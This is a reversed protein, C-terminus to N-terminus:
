SVTVSVTGPQTLPYVSTLTQDSATQGGGDLGLTVSVVRGVGNAGDMLAIVENLYVTTEWAWVDPSFYNELADSVNQQVEASTLTGDSTVTATVDVSFLGPDVVHLNLGAHARSEMDAELDSRETPTLLLGGAKAVAVTTNGTDLGPSGANPGAPDYLDIARARFIGEQELAYREFQSPLVLAETLRGLRETGRSLFQSGTEPDVGGAPSTDLAVSQVSALADVVSVSSGVDLGNPATGVTLAEGAVTGTANGPSVILESSTAFTVTNGPSVTVQVRTGEPVTFGSTGIGTFEFTATAATGLLPSIGFLRLLAEVTAGPLRNAAFILYSVELALAEMLVVETTGERAIFDPLSNQLSALADEFIVQADRDFISLDVYRSVDPSLGDSSM